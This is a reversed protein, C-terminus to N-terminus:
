RQVPLVGRRQRPLSQLVQVAAVVVWLAAALILNDIVVQVESVAPALRVFQAVVIPVHMLMAVLLSGTHDYVWVILVRYPPLWSFLLVALYLTPSITQSSFASGSFLPFHWVGWLLGMVLGTTLIGYRLRLRPTVFGTWGLEELVAVIIGLVISSLVLSVKNDSTLIIPLFDHSTQLLVLTVATYIFPATLLAVAYWRAAVRWRLLRSLLERLGTRGYIFATSLIGALSPGLLMTLLLFIMRGESVEKTGLFEGPGIVVIFSGWSLAFALAYYTLVSHKKIFSMITLM